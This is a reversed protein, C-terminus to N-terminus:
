VYEIWLGGVDTEGRVGDLRVKSGQLKTSSAIAGLVVNGYAFGSKDTQKVEEQNMPLRLTIKAGGVLGNVEQVRAVQFSIENEEEQGQVGLISSYARKTDDLLARDKVLVVLQRVSLAGSSHTTKVDDLPVRVNRPTIDHCFFPIRGRVTQGGKEGQPFTVAWKVDVGDARKRGGHVPKGHTGEITKYNDDPRQENTLCWDKWGVFDADPGWWHDPALDKNVFSILEIYCGDALLILTNSTAGDAHFGGPTLTFNEKFCQPLSPLKTTPDVPVFLILHDLSQTKSGM